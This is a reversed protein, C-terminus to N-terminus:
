EWVLNVTQGPRVVVNVPAPQRSSGTRPPQGRVALLVCPGTGACRVGKSEVTVRQPVTWIQNQTAKGSDLKQLLSRVEDGTFVRPSGPLPAGGLRIRRAANLLAPCADVPLFDALELEGTSVEVEPALVIPRCSAEAAATRAGVVIGIAALLFFMKMASNNLTM